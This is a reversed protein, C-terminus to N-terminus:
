INKRDFFPNKGQSSLPIGFIIAADNGLLNLEKVAKGISYMIRNDVRCDAAISVASGIAIGLDSTNFACPVSPYKNKLECNEFGCLGCNLGISRIKTAILVISEAYMINEADRKFFSVSDRISIEKMKESIQLIGEKTVKAIILNDFGRAKPATRAAILMQDAINEITRQKIEEEFEIM